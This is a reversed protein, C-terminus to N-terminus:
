KKKPFKIEVTMVRVTPDNSNLAKAETMAAIKMVGIRSGGAASTSGTRFAIIDGVEFPTLKSSTITSSMIESISAATANEYDFNSLIAFRAATKVPLATLKGTSGSYESSKETNDMSYMRPVSGSGYCYFKFDINKANAESQIAYDVSYSKMDNFSVMGYAEPYSTHATNAIKQSGVQVTAVEMDVYTTVYGTAVKDDRGDSVVVKIKYTADTLQVSPSYALSTEGNMTERHIETEGGAEVRYIAVEHVGRTSEIQMPIVTKTDSDASIVTQTLTLQPGPITKYTVPMTSITINGYTDEAKVKFGKDGEGYDIMEDFSYDSAGDLAVSGLLEQGGSSVLYFEVSTLGAESTVNFTTRPITPNEEMEDYVVEEPSFTIVPREMVDTVSVPLTGTSVHGLRDTAEIVVAEYEATYEPTESLSYANPNFFDTVTKYNEVGGITQIKLEVTQLGAESKIVAVVPLNDVKNLDVDLREMPFRIVPAASNPDISDKDDGCAM